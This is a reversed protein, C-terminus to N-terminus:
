SLLRVTSTRNMAKADAIADYIAAATLTARCCVLAAGLLPMMWTHNLRQLSSLPVIQMSVCAADGHPWSVVAQGYDDSLGAIIISVGKPRGTTGSTYNLALSKGNRRKAVHWVFCPDSARHFDEYTPHSARDRCFPMPAVEILCPRLGTWNPWLAAKPLDIFQTDALLL